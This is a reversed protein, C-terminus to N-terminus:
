CGYAMRKRHVSLDLQLIRCRDGMDQIREMVDTEALRGKRVLNAAVEIIRRAQQHKALDDGNTIYAYIWINSDIFRTM